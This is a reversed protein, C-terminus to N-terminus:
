NYLSVILKISGTGFFQIKIYFLVINPGSLIKHSQDQNFCFLLHPSPFRRGWFTNKKLIIDLTELSSVKLKLHTIFFQAFIIDCRCHCDFCLINCQNVENSSSILASSEISSSRVYVLFQHRVFRDEAWSSQNKVDDRHLLSSTGQYSTWIQMCIDTVFILGQAGRGQLTPGSVFIGEQLFM